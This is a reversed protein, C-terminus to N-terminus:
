HPYRPYFLFWLGCTLLYSVFSIALFMFLFCYIVSSWYIVYHTFPILGKIFMTWIKVWLVVVVLQTNRYHLCNYSAELPQFCLWQCLHVSFIFCSFLFLEITLYISYRLALSFANRLSKTLIFPTICKILNTVTLFKIRSTSNCYM